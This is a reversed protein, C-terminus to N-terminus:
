NVAADGLMDTIDITIVVQLRGSLGSTPELHVGSVLSEPNNVYRRALRRLREPASMDIAQAENSSVAGNLNQIPVPGVAEPLPTYGANVNEQDQQLELEAPGLSCPIHNRVPAQPAASWTQIPGDVVSETAAIGTPYASGFSQDAHPAISEKPSLDCDSSSLIATSHVARVVRVRPNQYEIAQRAM